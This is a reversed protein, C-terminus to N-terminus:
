RKENIIRELELILELPNTQIADAIAEVLQVSYTYTPNTQTENKYCYKPDDKVTYADLFKQFSHSNFIPQPELKNKRMKSTRFDM